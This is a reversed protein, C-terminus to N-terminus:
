DLSGCRNKCEALTAVCADHVHLFIIDNVNLTILTERDMSAPQVMEQTDLPVM